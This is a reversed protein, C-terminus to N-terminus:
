QKRFIHKENLNDSSIELYYVGKPLSQINLRFSENALTFPSKNVLTGTQNYIKVQGKGSQISKNNLTLSKNDRQITLFNTAPNPFINYTNNTTTQKSAPSFLPFSLALKVAKFANIRGYGAYISYTGYPHVSPNSTYSYGGVKDCTSTLIEKVETHTLDWHATLVLAAVGAANPTAASTGNFNTMYDSYAKGHTGTLDTTPILVGPAILNMGNGYNSGWWDEGDCSTKSKRKDCPSSAGTAIVGDIGSPYEIGNNSNNGVAVVVVCGRGGRGNQMAAQFNATVFDSPSGGGWSCSIIDANGGTPQWAWALATAIWLDKTVWARDPDGIPKGNTYAIRVPIIKAKYAVGAIGIGNNAEAAIIGACATGHYDNQSINAAGDQISGDTSNHGPLLNNVLDPHNLQVGEDLVAVKPVYGLPSNLQYSIVNWASDVEMDANATGPYSGTNNINWQDSYYPDITQPKIFRYFNPEIFAIRKDQNFKDILDFIQQTNLTNFTINYIKNNNFEPILSDKIDYDKFIEHIGQTTTDSLQVIVTGDCVQMTSDAYLLVPEVRNYKIAATPTLKKLNSLLTSYDTQDFELIQFKKNNLYVKAGLSNMIEASRQNNQSNSPIFALHPATTFEIKSGSNTSYSLKEQASLLLPIFCLLLPLLTKEYNTLKIIRSKQKISPKRIKYGM